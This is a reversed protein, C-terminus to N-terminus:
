IRSKKTIKAAVLTTAGFIVFIIFIPMDGTSPASNPGTTTPTVPPAAEEVALPTASEEAVAPAAPPTAEYVSLRGLGNNPNDKGTGDVCDFQVWTVNKPDFTVESAAGDDELDVSLSSGDSFSINVKETWDALNARDAIIIKDIWVSNDWELKLWPNAESASAWEIGQEHEAEEEHICTEPAYKESFESSATVKAKSAIEAGTASVTMVLASILIITITLIAIKRNM